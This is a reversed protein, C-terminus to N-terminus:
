DGLAEFHAAEPHSEANTAAKDADWWQDEFVCDEAASLGGQAGSGATLITLSAGLAIGPFVKM